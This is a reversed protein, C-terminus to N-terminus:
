YEEFAALFGDFNSALLTSIISIYLFDKARENGYVHSAFLSAAGSFPTSFVGPEKTFGNKIENCYMKARRGYLSSFLTKVNTEFDGEGWQERLYEREDTSPIFDSINVIQESAGLVKKLYMTLSTIIKQRKDHNFKDNINLLTIAIAANLIALSFFFRDRESQSNIDNVLESTHKKSAFSLSIAALAEGFEEDKIERPKLFSLFGMKYDKKQQLIQIM